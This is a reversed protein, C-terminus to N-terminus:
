GGDMKRDDGFPFAMPLGASGANWQQFQVFDTQVGYFVPIFITGQSHSTVM